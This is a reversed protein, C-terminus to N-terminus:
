DWTRLDGVITSYRRLIRERELSFIVMGSVMAVGLLTLFLAGLPRSALGYRLMNLILDAALFGVGMLVYARVRLVAGALMGGVCLLPVVVVAQLPTVATLAEAVGITYVCLLLLTRLSSSASRGLEDRYLHTLVLLALAVPSAQLLLDSWQLAAFGLLSAGAAFILGPVCLHRNHLRRALSGFHLAILLCLLAAGGRSMAPLLLLALGPWLSSAALLPRRFVARAIRSSLGLAAQAAVLLM